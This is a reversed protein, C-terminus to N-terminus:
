RAWLWLPVLALLLSAAIFTGLTWRLTRGPAELRRRVLLTAAAAALQLLARAALALPASGLQALLAWLAIAALGGAFAGVERRIPSLSDDTM